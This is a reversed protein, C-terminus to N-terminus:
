YREPKELEELISLVSKRAELEVDDLFMDAEIIELLGIKEEPTFNGRSKATGLIEDLKEKAQPSVGSDNILNQLEELNDM